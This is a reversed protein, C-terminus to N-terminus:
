MHQGSNFTLFCYSDHELQSPQPEARTKATGEADSFHLHLQNGRVNSYLAWHSVGILQGLAM